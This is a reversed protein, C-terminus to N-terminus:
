KKRRAAVDIARQMWVILEEIDELVRPPVEYYNMPKSDTGFPQFPKMGERVFDARNAEDVKFFLTDDDALAFFLGGAYYGVGGFMRRSTIKRVEGLQDLVFAAFQGSVAM